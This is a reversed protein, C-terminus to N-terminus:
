GLVNKYAELLGRNYFLNLMYSGDREDIPRAQLDEVVSTLRKVQFEIDKRSMMKHGCKQTM